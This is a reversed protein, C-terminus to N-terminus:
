RRLVACSRLRNENQGLRTGLLGLHSNRSRLDFTCEARRQGNSLSSTDLTKSDRTGRVADLPCFEGIRQQNHSAHTDGDQEGFVLCKESYIDNEYRVPLRSCAALVIHDPKPDLEASLRKATRLSLAEGGIRLWQKTATRKPTSRTKLMLRRSSCGQIISAHEELAEEFKKKEESKVQQSPYTHAVSASDICM